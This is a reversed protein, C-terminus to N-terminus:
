QVRLYVSSSSQATGFDLRIPQDGSPTNDPVTFRLQYLGPGVLDAFAPTIQATGLDIFVPLTLPYAGSFEANTTFPNAPGMGIGYIDITEGPKVPSSVRPDAASNGLYQGTVPDVATVFCASPVAGALWNCYIAPLVQTSLVQFPSGSVGNDNVVVNVQGLHIGGPALVNIQTPSVYQVVAPLGDITVSVNDL